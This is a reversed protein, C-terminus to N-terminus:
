FIGGPRAARDVIKIFEDAKRADKASRIMKIHPILFPIGPRQDWLARYNAYDGKSNIIRFLASNSKVNAMRLGFVLATMSYYHREEYLRQSLTLERIKQHGPM